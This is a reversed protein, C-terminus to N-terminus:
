RSPLSPLVPEFTAAAEQSLVVVRCVLVDELLFCPVLFSATNGPKMKAHILLRDLACLGVKSTFIGESGETFSHGYWIVPM